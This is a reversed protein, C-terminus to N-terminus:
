GNDVEREIWGRGKCVECIRCRKKLRHNLVMAIAIGVVAAGGCWLVAFCLAEINM